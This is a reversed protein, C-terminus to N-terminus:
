SVSAARGTSRPSISSFSATGRTTARFGRTICFDYPAIVVALQKGFQALQTFGNSIFLVNRGVHDEVIRRKDLHCLLRREAGAFHEADVTNARALQLAKAFLKHRKDASM